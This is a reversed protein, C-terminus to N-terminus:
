SMVTQHPLTQTITKSPILSRLASNRISTSPMKMSTQVHLYIERINQKTCIDLVHNLLKTGIGLGRYPALVGLTM